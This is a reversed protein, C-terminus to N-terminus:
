DMSRRSFVHNNRVTLDGGQALTFGLYRALYSHEFYTENFPGPTLIVVQPNKAARAHFAWCRRAFRVFFRLLREVQFERFLDPFTEDVRHSERACLGAGFASPLSGFTGVMSWRALAGSGGRASAFINQGPVSVGHCPRWFGPNAFVLAPPIHGGRLLEQPGYLDALIWNLLRARQILGAELQSWEAPSILAFRTL